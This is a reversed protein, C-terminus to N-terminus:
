LYVNILVHRYILTFTNDFLLISFLCFISLFFFSVKDETNSLVKPTTCFPRIEQPIVSDISNVSQTDISYLSNSNVTSSPLHSANFTSNLSPLSPLDFDDDDDNSFQLDSCLLKLQLKSYPHPYHLYMHLVKKKDKRQMVLHEVNDFTNELCKGNYDGLFSDNGVIKFYEKAHSLM